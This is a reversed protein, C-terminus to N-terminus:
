LATVEPVGLSRQPPRPKRSFSIQTNTMLIQSSSPCLVVDFYCTVHMIIVHFLSGRWRRHSTARTVGRSGGRFIKRYSDTPGTKLRIHSHGTDCNASRVVLNRRVSIYKFSSLLRDTRNERQSDPVFSHRYLQCLAPESAPRKFHQLINICKEFLIYPLLKIL